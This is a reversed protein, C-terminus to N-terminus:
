HAAPAIFVSDRQASFWVRHRSLFPQGLIVDPLGPRRETVVMPVARLTEGGVDLRDFEAMFAHALEPGVGRLARGPLRHSRAYAFGQADTLLVDTQSGSDLMAKFPRGELTVPIVFVGNLASAPIRQMGTWQPPSDACATGAYLVAKGAAMDLEFDYHGLVSMGLLGDVPVSGASPLDQQLVGAPVAHLVLSGISLEDLTVNLQRTSGGIGSAAVSRRPDERLGLRNAARQTLVVGQAGTDLLFLADQGNVRVPVVPLKMGPMMSLDAAPKLTCTGGSACAGLALLGLLLLTRMARQPWAGRM